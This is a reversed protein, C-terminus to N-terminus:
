RESTAAHPTSAGGDRDEGAQERTRAAGGLFLHVFDPSTALETPTGQMQCQGAGLVYAYGSIALATKARQEVLLVAAGTAALARVQVTLLQDAVKPALNATPEDLIFVRPQVVLVRGMALMKREGGSLKGARRTLMTKLTPFVDLVHEIRREVERSKLLYAGVELNERVTLPEFVDDVQPVYGVGNRAMVDPRRGTLDKGALTVRGGLVEVIGVLSKLLTSKGSGNPGVVSVVEGGGVAVSLGNIIPAGGYGATIQEAQLLPSPRPESALM